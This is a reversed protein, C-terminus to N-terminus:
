MGLDDGPDLPTQRVANRVQKQFAAQPGDDEREHEFLFERQKNSKPPAIKEHEPLEPERRPGGNAPDSPVALSPAVMSNWAAPAIPLPPAAPKAPALAPPPLVR